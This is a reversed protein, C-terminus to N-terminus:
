VKRELFQPSSLALLTAGAAAVGSTDDHGGITRSIRGSCNLIGAQKKLFGSGRPSPFPRSGPGRAATTAATRM